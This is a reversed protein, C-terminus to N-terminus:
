RLCLRVIWNGGIGKLFLPANIEPNACQWSKRRKACWPALINVKLHLVIEVTLEHAKIPISGLKQWETDVSLTGCMIFRFIFPLGAREWCLLLMCHLQAQQWLQYKSKEKVFPM